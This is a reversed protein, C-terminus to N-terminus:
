QKRVKMKGLGAKFDELKVKKWESNGCRNVWVGSELRGAIYVVLYLPVDLKSALLRLLAGQSREAAVKAEVGEFFKPSPDRGERVGGPHEPSEMDAVCLEIIAVPVLNGGEDYRYEIQDVDCVGAIGLVTRWDRYERTRTEGDEKSWNKNLTM